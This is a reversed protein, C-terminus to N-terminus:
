GGNDVLNEVVPDDRLGGGGTERIVLQKRANGLRLTSQPTTTQEWNSLTSLM